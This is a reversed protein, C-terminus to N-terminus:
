QCFHFLETVICLLYVYKEVMNIGAAGRRGAVTRSFPSDLSSFNGFIV